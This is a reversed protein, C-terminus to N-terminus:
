KLSPKKQHGNILSQGRKTYKNAKGTFIKLKITAPKTTIM